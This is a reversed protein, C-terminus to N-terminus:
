QRTAAPKCVRRAISLDGAVKSADFKVGWADLLKKLEKNLTGGGSAPNVMRGIDPVPDLFAMVRGGKLHSSISPM